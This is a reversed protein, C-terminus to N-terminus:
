IFPIIRKGDSDKLSVCLSNSNDTFIITVKSSDQIYETSFSYNENNYLVIFDTSEVLGDCVVKESDSSELILPFSQKDNVDECDIIKITSVTNNKLIIVTKPNKEFNCSSFLCLIFVSLVIKKISKNIVSVEVLEDSM